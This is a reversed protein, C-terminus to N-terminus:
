GLIERVCRVVTPIAAEVSPNMQYGVTSCDAAEVAVIQLKELKSIGLRRALQAAEFIGIYHPSGGSAARLEGEEFTHITGPRSRGTRITDVVVLRSVGLLHDILYLGSEMSDVVDVDAALERRLVEAVRIGLADDALVDNGLCLVRTKCKNETSVEM